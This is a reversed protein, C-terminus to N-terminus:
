GGGTLMGITRAILLVNRKLLSLEDLDFDVDEEDWTLLQQSLARAHEHDSEFRNNAAWWKPMKTQLLLGLTYTLAKPSPTILRAPGLQVLHPMNAAEIFEKQKEDLEDFRKIEYKGVYCQFDILPEAM